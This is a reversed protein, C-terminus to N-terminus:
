KVLVWMVSHSRRARRQAVWKPSSPRTENVLIFQDALGFGVNTASRLVDLSVLHLRNQYSMDQCKVLLRGGPRLVRYAEVIGKAYLDTVDNISDLMPGGIGYHDMKRGQTKSGHTPRYPPDLVLVDVSDDAHPLCRLDVGDLELDHAHTPQTLGRWFAGKGYTVDVVVDGVTIWLRAIEAVLDTNKGVVASGVPAGHSQPNPCRVDPGRAVPDDPAYTSM